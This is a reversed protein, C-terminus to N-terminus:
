FRILRGQTCISMIKVFECHERTLVSRAQISLCRFVPMCVILKIGNSYYYLIYGAGIGSVAKFHYKM